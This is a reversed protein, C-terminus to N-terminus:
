DGEVSSYIRFSGCEAVLMGNQDLAVITWRECPFDSHPSEYEYVDGATPTPRDTVRPVASVVIPFLCVFILLRM